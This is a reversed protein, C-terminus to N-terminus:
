KHVSQGIGTTDFIAQLESFASLSNAARRLLRRAEIINDNEIEIDAKRINDRITNAWIGYRSVTSADDCIQDVAARLLRKDPNVAEGDPFAKSIRYEQDTNFREIIDEIQDETMITFDGKKTKRDIDYNNRTFM